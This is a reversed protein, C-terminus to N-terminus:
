PLPVGMVADWIRPAVQDKLAIIDNGEPFISNGCLALMCTQTNTEFKAEIDLMYGMAVGRPFADPVKNTLENAVRGYVINVRNRGNSWDPREGSPTSISELASSFNSFAPEEILDAITQAVFMNKYRILHNLRTVWTRLRTVEPGWELVDLYLDRITLVPVEDLSSAPVGATLLWKREFSNLVTNGEAATQFGLRAPGTYEVEPKM